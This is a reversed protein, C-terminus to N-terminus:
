KEKIGEGWVSKPRDIDLEKVGISKLEDRIEEWNDVLLKLKPFEDLDYWIKPKLDYEKSQNENEDNSIEEIEKTDSM